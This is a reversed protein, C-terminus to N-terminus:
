PMSTFANAIHRIVPTGREFEVAVFDFRCPCESIGQQHFYGLALRMLQNQKKRTMSYEPPGYQASLRTKVEVFVTYEGDLAIIDIEGHGIRHNRSLIQFGKGALYEAALSEGRRALDEM